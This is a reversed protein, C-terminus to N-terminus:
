VDKAAQPDAVCSFTIDAALIVDSPTLGQEAGAKVFDKCLKTFSNPACINELSPEATQLFAFCIGFADRIDECAISLM